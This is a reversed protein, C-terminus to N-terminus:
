QNSEVYRAKSYNKQGNYYSAFKLFLIIISYQSLGVSSFLGNKTETETETEEEREEQTRYLELLRIFHVIRLM